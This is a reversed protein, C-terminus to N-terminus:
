YRISSSLAAPKVSQLWNVTSSIELIRPELCACQLAHRRPACQQYRRRGLFRTRNLHSLDILIGLRNCAGILEKGLDTSWAGHRAFLSLPVARWARM